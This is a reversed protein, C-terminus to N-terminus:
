SIRYLLKGDFSLISPIFESKALLKRVDTWEVSKEGLMIAICELTSKVNVPPTKLARIEDM